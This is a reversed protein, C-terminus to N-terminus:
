FFLPQNQIPSHTHYKRKLMNYESKELRAQILNIMLVFCFLVCVCFGFIANSSEVQVISIEHKIPKETSIDGLWKIGWIISYNEM